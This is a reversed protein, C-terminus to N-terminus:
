ANAAHRDIDTAPIRIKRRRGRKIGKIRMYALLVGNKVATRVIMYSIWSLLVLGVLSIAVYVAFLLFSQLGINM